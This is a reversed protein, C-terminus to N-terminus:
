PQDGLRQALFQRLASFDGTQAGARALSTLSDSLRTRASSIQRKILQERVLPDLGEPISLLAQEGAQRSTAGRIQAVQLGLDTPLDIRGGFRDLLRPSPVGPAAGAARLAQALPDDPRDRPTGQPLRDGLFARTAAGQPERLREGFIDVEPVREPLTQRLGPIAEKSRAIERDVIGLQEGQADRETERRIPDTARAVARLGSPIFQRAIARPDIDFESVLPLERFAGQGAAQVAQAAREAGSEEDQTRRLSRGAKLGGIVPLAAPGAAVALFRDAEEPIADSAGLAGAGIAAGTGLGARLLRQSLSTGANLGGRLSDPLLGLPSRELGREAFQVGIRAFPVALRTFINSNITEVVRKGIETTPPGALTLRLAEDGSIGGSRLASTVGYDVAGIARGFLKRQAQGEFKQFVSPNVSPDKFAQAIRKFLIDPALERLVRNRAAPPLEMAGQIAGSLAGLFANPVATGSLLAENRFQMVTDAIGQDKVTQLIRAPTPLRSTAAETAADSVATPSAKLLRALGHGAAAGALGGAFAGAIREETTDGELAGITAGAVGGSLAPTKAIQGALGGFGSGLTTGGEGKIAKIRDILTSVEAENAARAADRGLTERNRQATENLRRLDDPAVDDISLGAADLDQKLRKFGGQSAVLPSRRAEVGGTAEIVEDRTQGTAKAV